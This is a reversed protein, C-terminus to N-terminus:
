RHTLEDVVVAVWAFHASAGGDHAHHAMGDHRDPPHPVTAAPNHPVHEHPEGGHFCMAEGGHALAEPPAAPAPAEVPPTGKPAHPTPPHTFRTRLRSRFSM